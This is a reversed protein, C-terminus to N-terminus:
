RPPSDLDGMRSCWESLLLLLSYMCGPKASAGAITSDDPCCYPQEPLAWGPHLWGDHHAELSSMSPCSGQQKSYFDKDRDQQVAKSALCFESGCMATMAVVPWLNM